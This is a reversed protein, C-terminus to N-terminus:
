VGWVYMWYFQISVAVANGQNDIRCIAPMYESQNLAGISNLPITAVVNGDIAYVMYGGAIQYIEFLHSNVNDVAVGTDFVAAGVASTAAYAKWTGDVGASARFAFIQLAPTNSGLAGYSSLPSQMSSLGVWFRSNTLQTCKVRASFKRFLGLTAGFVNQSIGSVSSATASSTYKGNAYDTATAPVDTVSGGQEGTTQNSWYITGATGEYKAGCINPLTTVFAPESAAIITNVSTPVTIQTSSIGYVPM